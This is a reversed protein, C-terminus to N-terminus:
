EHLIEKLVSEFKEAFAAQDGDNYLAYDCNDIFYRDERQANIRQEAEERSIGDRATIRAIRTERPALVAVTARCRAGLGSSLLEIADAAALTGGAMAWDRLRREVEDSVYRHSITNLRRLAEPDSFVVRGLAKRDLSGERVTGSFAADLEGLLAADHDLLEHYIADCDLVLGGRRKIEALATTKGSGSPGTIGILTMHEALAAAIEEAPLAGQRLVRYPTHAMDLLTSEKGLGCPGGDVIAAITGDFYRRVEEATKPSPEGSPNASPAAFPIQAKRLLTLTMPHDPCRLGVTEGGARVIEPVLAKARLVITLPGPWFRQALFQAQEPVDECYNEMASCDPVMLSLPKIAPRGKVEYIAEVAREDLGNGALGYVTETPVAVLEGDRLLEAAADLNETIIQTEM